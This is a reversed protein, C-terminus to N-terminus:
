QENEIRLRETNMKELIWDLERVSYEILQNGFADIIGFETLKRRFERQIEIAQLDVAVQPPIGSFVIENWINSLSRELMYQGPSRPVDRLWHISDMMVDIFGDDVPANELAELNSSLWLAGYNSQLIFAFEMQTEASTWWKLFEWSEDPKTTNNFIV